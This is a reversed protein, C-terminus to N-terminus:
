PYYPLGGTSKIADYADSSTAFEIFKKINGTMNKKKFILALFGVYPYDAETPSKVNISLINVNYNRSNIYTGFAITDKIRETAKCTDPDSFTTKSIPTLTIDSFGPLSEVLVRLSSDGDERIIVRIKADKGGVANWNTIRGSYIDCVQKTTLAKIEVSKNTFFVIPMKVIPVHSLDYHKEMDKIERAIRGIKYQDNGVTKVGGGSGISDPVVVHIGPNNETFAEGVAKLVPMGSGTGVIIIEEAASTSAFTLWMAMATYVFLTREM